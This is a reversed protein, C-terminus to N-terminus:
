INTGTYLREEEGKRQAKQNNQALRTIRESPSPALLLDDLNRVWSFAVFSIGAQYETDGVDVVAKDLTLGQCKHVTLAWCLSLPIGTRSNIQNGSRWTRTFPVVPFTRPIDPIFSPGTYGPFECVIVAPLAPPPAGESFLIQRVFGISGNVLGKDVWINNRLM